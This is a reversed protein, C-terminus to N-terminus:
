RTKVCWRGHHIFPQPSKKKAGQTGRIENVVGRRDRERGKGEEDKEGSKKLQFASKQRCPAQGSGRMRKKGACAPVYKGQPCRSFIGLKGEQCTDRGGLKELQPLGKTKGAKNKSIDGKLTASWDDEQL